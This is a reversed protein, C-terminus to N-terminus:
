SNALVWEAAKIGSLIAGQVKPGGFADGILILNPRASVVCFPNSYMTRPLSYRWRMLQNTEISHRPIYNKISESLEAIIGSENAEFNAESWEPSAQVTLCHKESIGKQQNDTVWGLIPHDIFREYGPEMILSPQNLGVLMALCPWYTLRKLETLLEPKVDVHSLLDLAQPVPSSVIVNNAFYVNKDTDALLWQESHRKISDIRTDLKVNLNRALVKPLMTMGNPSSYAPERSEEKFWIQFLEEACWTSLLSQLEHSDIRVYQAGHDWVFDENYRRAMRGGVGRSKDIVLVNLGNKNLHEAALLGSIGAGLIIYDWIENM